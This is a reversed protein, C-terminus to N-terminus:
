HDSVSRDTPRKSSGTPWGTRSSWVRSSRDAIRTTSSMATPSARALAMVLADVVLDTTQREGMSWGVVTRDHLDKIGALFLKGDCCRFESIDAVWRENPVAATFDRELLDAAPATNPRGRRWKKRGHAGVLGLQRMVRAVRKRGVLHGHRRLQGRIRPAGYTGHSATHIDFIENALWADDLYTDSITPTM